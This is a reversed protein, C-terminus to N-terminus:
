LSEESNRAIDYFVGLHQNVKHTQTYEKQSKARPKSADLHGPGWTWVAAVAGTRHTRRWECIYILKRVRLYRLWKGLTSDHIGIRKILEPRSFEGKTLALCLEAFMVANASARAATKVKPPAM